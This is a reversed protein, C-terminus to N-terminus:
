SLRRWAAKVVYPRRWAVEIVNVRGKPSPLRKWLTLTAITHTENLTKCTYQIRECKATTRTRKREYVKFGVYAHPEYLMLM